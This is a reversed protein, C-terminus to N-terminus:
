AYPCPAGHYTNLSKPVLYGPFRNGVATPLVDRAIKLVLNVPCLGQVAQAARRLWAVLLCYTALCIRATDRCRTYRM